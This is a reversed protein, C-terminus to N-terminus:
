ANAGKTITFNLVLAEALAGASLNKIKIYGVGSALIHEEAEYNLVNIGNGNTICVKFTDYAGLTTNNFNFGVTALSALSANNLTIQGTPKNLTVATSKSTPQTVTGGSGTGYGLGGSGTVLVNGATDIRMREAGSTFFTMPLYTGTGSIASQIRADTNTCGFWALACDSSNSSNYAQFSSVVSLGNPIASIGTSGNTINTQLLTRTALTSSFDGTIKTGSAFNLNGTMTDGTKHVVESETAISVGDVTIDNAQGNIVIAM